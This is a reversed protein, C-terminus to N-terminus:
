QAEPFLEGSNSVLVVTTGLRRLFGSPGFLNSFINQETESDLGSFTDDLLVTDCRAFLARALAQLLHTDLGGLASLLFM